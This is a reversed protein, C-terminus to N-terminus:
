LRAPLKKSSGAPVIVDTSGPLLVRAEGESVEVELGDADSWSVVLRAAGTVRYPGASVSAIDSGGGLQGRAEGHELVLESAGDPRTARKAKAGDSARVGDAAPGPGNEASGRAAASPAPPGDSRLAFFLAAAASAGAFALIWRNSTGREEKPEFLRRRAAHIARGDSPELARAVNRGIRKLEREEQETALSVQEM